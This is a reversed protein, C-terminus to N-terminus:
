RGGWGWVLEGGDGAGCWSVKRRNEKDVRSKREQEMVLREDSTIDATKIDKTVITPRTQRRTFPDVARM